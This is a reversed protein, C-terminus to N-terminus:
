LIIPLIDPRYRTDSVNIQSCISSPLLDLVYYTYLLRALERLFIHLLHRQDLGNRRTGYYMCIHLFNIDHALHIRTSM